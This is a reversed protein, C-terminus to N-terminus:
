ADLSSFFLFPRNRMVKEGETRILIPTHDSKEMTLHQVTVSPSLSLWGSDALARDLQRRINAAGDQKNIWTFKRGFCGLDIARTLQIFEKLFLRRGSLEKGWFRKSNDVIENLDGFVLWPIEENNFWETMDGWFIRKASYKTPGYVGYLLWVDQKNTNKVTCCIVNDSTWVVHIDVEKHWLWILGRSRGRAEVVEWCEFDLRKALKEIREVTGKTESLLVCTPRFNKVLGCLYDVM